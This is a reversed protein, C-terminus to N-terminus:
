PPAKTTWCTSGAPRTTATTSLAPWAVASPRWTHRRGLCRGIAPWPTEVQFGISGNRTLPIDALAIREKFAGEAAFIHGDAVYIVRQGQARHTAM